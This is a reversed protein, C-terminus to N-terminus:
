SKGLSIRKSSSKKSRRKDRGHDGQSPSNSYHRDSKDPSKPNSSGTISHTSVTQRKVEAGEGIKAKGRTRRRRAALANREELDVRKEKFAKMLADSTCPEVEGQPPLPQDQGVPLQNDNRQETNVRLPPPPPDQDVTLRNDNTQSM